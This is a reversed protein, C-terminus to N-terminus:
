LVIKFELVIDSLDYVPNQNLILQNYYDTSFLLKEVM